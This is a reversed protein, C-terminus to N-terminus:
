FMSEQGGPRHETPLDLSLDGLAQDLEDSSDVARAGAAILNRNGAPTAAGFTWVLVPRGQKLAAQGAAFSGGREGAEVVVLVQSLAIIVKNRDMATYSAWRQGPAFQSIAVTNVAEAVGDYESKFRFHHIGEALVIVTGGAANLAALHTADDVGRAYGSTVAFGRQAIRTGSEVAAQLGHDSVDRSGCTGVNPGHLLEPNGRYFLLPVTPRKPAVLRQPFDPDGFLTAGTGLDYLRAADDAIAARVDNGLQAHKGALESRGGSALTAAIRAPTRDTAFATLALELSEIDAPM